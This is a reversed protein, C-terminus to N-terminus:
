AAVRSAGAGDHFRVAVSAGLKWLWLAAADAREVLLFARTSTLPRAVPPVLEWHEDTLPEGDLLVQWAGHRNRTVELLSPLTITETMDALRCALRAPRRHKM